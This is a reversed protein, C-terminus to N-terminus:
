AIVADSRLQPLTKGGYARSASGRAGGGRATRVTCGSTRPTKRRRPDGAAADSGGSAVYLTMNAMAPGVRIVTVVFLAVLLGLTQTM